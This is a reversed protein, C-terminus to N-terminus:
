QVTDSSLARAQTLSSDHQKFATTQQHNPNLSIYYYTQSSLILIVLIQITLQKLFSLCSVHENQQPNSDLENKTETNNIVLSAYVSSVDISMKIEKEKLTYTRM